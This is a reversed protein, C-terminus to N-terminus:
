RGPQMPGVQPWLPRGTEDRLRLVQAGKQVEVAVLMTHQRFPVRVGKVQVQDDKAFKLGQQDVYDAPGLNVAITEKDTKLLLQMRPPMKSRRPAFRNVAEVTGTLTEMKSLDLAQGPGGAGRMPQGWAQVVLLLGMLATLVIKVSLKTM